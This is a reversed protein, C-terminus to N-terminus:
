EASIFRVPAYGSAKGTVLLGDDVSTYSVGQGDLYAATLNLDGVAVTVACMGKGAQAWRERAVGDTTPQALTIHEGSELPLTLTQAGLWSTESPTESTPSLAYAQAFRKRLAALDDTAIVVDALRLAGNPHPALGSSGALERRHQEDTTNHQILFPLPEAAAWLDDTGLTTVQWGRAQGDPAVLRGLRPGYAEAGREWMAMTEDTIAESQVAFGVWGEGRAHRAVLGPSVVKSDAIALLELYGEGLIIIRNQTGLHPHKGGGTVFFGLRAFTAELQALDNGFVIVHDIRIPM